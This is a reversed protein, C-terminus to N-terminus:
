NEKKLEHHLWAQAMKWDRKVTAPSIDLSEATEEISLGAFFRLQVVKTQQADFDALKKLANDLDILDVESNEVAIQLASDIQQFRVEGGNKVRHRKRAHDVLIRRMIESALWFFHARGEWVVIRQEFLKIFAEHVLSTTQLTLNEQERFMLRKAQAHLEHYVLPVLKEWDQGDNNKWERLFESIEKQASRQIM